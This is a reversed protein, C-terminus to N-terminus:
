GAFGNWSRLSASTDFSKSPIPMVAKVMGHNQPLSEDVGTPVFAGTIPRRSHFIPCVRPNIRYPRFCSAVLRRVVM